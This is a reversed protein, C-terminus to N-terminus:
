CLLDSCFHLTFDWHSILECRNPYNNNFGYVILLMPLSTSSPFSWRSKTLICISKNVMSLETSTDHSESRVELNYGLSCFDSCLVSCQLTMSKTDNVIVLFYLSDVHRDLPYDSLTQM